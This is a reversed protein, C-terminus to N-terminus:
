EVLDPISFDSGTDSFANIEILEDANAKKSKETFFASTLLSNQDLTSNANQLMRRQNLIESISIENGYEKVVLEFQHTTKDYGLSVYDMHNIGYETIDDGFLLQSIVKLKVQTDAAGQPTVFGYGVAGSFWNGILSVVSMGGVVDDINYPKVINVIVTAAEEATNGGGLYEALESVWRDEPRQSIGGVAKTELHVLAKGDVFEVDYCDDGFYFTGEFFPISSNNDLVLVCDKYDIIYEEKMSMLNLNNTALVQICYVGRTNESPCGYFRPLDVPIRFRMPLQLNFRIDKALVYYAIKDEDVREIIIESNDPLEDGQGLMLYDSDISARIMIDFPRTSIWQGDRILMLKEHQICARYVGPRFDARM